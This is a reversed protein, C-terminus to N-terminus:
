LRRNAASGRVRTAPARRRRRRRSLAVGIRADYIDTTADGDAALVADNTTFYIDRGSPTITAYAKGGFDSTAAVGDPSIKAVDGGQWAYVDDVGNTDSPSLAEATSFIVTSGDSTMSPRPSSSADFGDNGGAGSVRVSVRVIAPTEADYRYVDTVADTDGSPGTTVLSNATTFLLYRGDPTVQAGALDNGSSGDLGAVFRTQGAPHAGNREWLYLNHAGVRAGADGVGLNNALVGQAVFYVRAGDKSVAVM